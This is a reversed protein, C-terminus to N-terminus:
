VSHKMKAGPGTERIMMCAFTGILCPFACLFIALRLTFNDGMWGAVAPAILGSVFGCSTILSFAAGVLTPTMKELEMPVLFMPPIWICNGIGVLAVGVFGIFGSKGFYFLAIGVVKMVQGIVLLGKRRGSKGMYGYAILGGAIGAIPFIMTLNNAMDPTYGAETEYYTPLMSSIISFSIFDCVFAIILIVIEKRKLLNLYVNKDSSVEGAIEASIPGEDKVMGLWFTLVVVCFIGWIALAMRWSGNFMEMMPITTGYVLVNAFYPFLANITNMTEQQKPTYWYMIAAGIFPTGLGFGIGYLVRGTLLMAYSDALLYLMIGVGGIILTLVYMNKLGIKQQIFPGIMAFIIIPIFIVSIGFGGQAMNIGLDNMIQTLVASPHMQAIYMFFIGLIILATLAPLKNVTQQKENKDM